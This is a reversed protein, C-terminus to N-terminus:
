RPSAPRAHELAVAAQAAFAEALERERADFPRRARLTLVGTIRDGSRLPVGLLTTYGFRRDAALHEPIMVAAMEEIAFEMTHGAALVRGSLSEGLRIRTRANVERGTGASGALVLEDGELVRFAANDIGLLQAAEESIANLLTETSAAMSSIRTNIALLRALHAERTRADDLARTRAVVGAAHDALAALMAVQDGPSPQRPLAVTLAGLLRSGAVLPVGVIKGGREEVVAAGRKDVVTVAVGQMSAQDAASATVAAGLVVVAGASASADSRGAVLWVGGASAGLAGVVTEAIAQLAARGDTADALARGLQGLAELARDM